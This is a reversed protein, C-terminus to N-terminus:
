KGVTNRYEDLEEEIITMAREIGNLYGQTRYFKTDRNCKRLEKFDRDFEYKLKDKFVQWGAMVVISALLDYEEQNSIM